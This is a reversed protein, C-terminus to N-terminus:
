PLSVFPANATIFEIAFSGNSWASSPIDYVNEIVGPVSPLVSSSFIVFRTLINSPYKACVPCWM